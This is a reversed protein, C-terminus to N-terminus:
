WFTFEYPDFAPVVRDAYLNMRDLEPDTVANKPLNSEGELLAWLKNASRGAGVKFSIVNDGKKLNLKLAFKPHHAGMQTAFVEEGNVWVRVRWDVGIKLLAEGAEKRNVTAIAYTCPFSASEFKGGLKRFDFCGSADPDLTPRWNCTGGQPIPFDINPNFDGAITMKEGEECWVTDLLTSDDKETAFPGLVYVSPLPQFPAVGAQYFARRAVKADPAFGLNTMVRAYLRDVHEEAYACTRQREKFFSVEKAITGFPLMSVIMKAPGITGVAFLGNGVVTFGSPAKVITRFTPGELAKLSFAPMTVGDFAVAPFEFVSRRAVEFGLSRCVDENPDVILFNVGKEVEAAYDAWKVASCDAQWIETGGMVRIGVPAQGGNGIVKEKTLRDIVNRASFDFWTTEVRRWKKALDHSHTDAGSPPAGLAQLAQAYFDVMWKGSALAATQAGAVDQYRSLFQGRPVMLFVVKGKGIKAQAVLGDALVAFPSPAATVKTADLRDSWRWLSPGIGRFADGTAPMVKRVETPASLTLGAEQAIRANNEVLVVAGGEAKTKLTSWAIADEAKVYVTTDNFTSAAEGTPFTSFIQRATETAAPDVGMRNEFDLTCYTIAGKGSRFRLVAAYNMDFEGDIVSEYGVQEPVQLVFGAVVHNRTWRPGRQKAHSMVPGWDKTGYQPAGRWYALMDDTLGLAPDRAWLIRAMADMPRLGFAKWTAADQPLVLIDLGEKVREDLGTLPFRGAANKGIVLLSIDKMAAVDDPSVVKQYKVGLGDLVNASLGAPDFLAVKGSVKLKEVTKPYVEIPLTDTFWNKGTEDAFTMVLEFSTKKEVSPAKFVIPRFATEGPVMKEIQVYKKEGNFTATCTFTRPTGGDWVFVAQKAIMEGAYYAHTKDHHSPTGGIYGCFDLNGLQYADYAPSAWDPRKGHLPGSLEIDNRGYPGCKESGYGQRNFWLNGGNLGDARWRSNTRWVFLRELAQYLPLQQVIRHGIESGHGDPMDAGADITEALIDVPETEYARDGFYQALHETAVFLHNRDYWCGMYPQGFEAGHWPIVGDTAWKTLWEEREQLPTWNLYMNGSGMDGNPGDAHSYYLINPNWTRNVDRAKNIAEDRDSKGLSQGIADAGFGIHCIIMQTVYCATLSPHNRTLKHFFGLFKRYQEAAEPNKNIDNGAINGLNGPSCFFGMGLEDYANMMEESLLSPFPDINHNYTLVNYGIDHLFEIGWRNANYAYNTRLRVKHGNMMLEKGERWIERFGFRCDFDFTSASSRLSVKAKYLYPRNFEWCIPDAWPIDVAYRRARPNDCPLSSLRSVASSVSKVVKGDTDTVVASLTQADATLSKEGSGQGPNEVEVEVRLRKERWSTNAFVDTIQPGKSAVLCPPRYYPGPAIAHQKWDGFGWQGHSTGEGTVTYYIRLENEAGSKLFRSVDLDGGPRLVEGAMKGNVFVIADVRQLPGLALRVFQDKWDAPVTIKTRKWTGGSEDKRGTVGDWATKQWAGVDDKPAELTKAVKQAEWVVNTGLTMKEMATAGLAVAAGLTM